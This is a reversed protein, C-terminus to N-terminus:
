RRVVEVEKKFTAVADINGLVPVRKEYDVSIRMRGGQSEVKVDRGSISTVDNVSFRKDLMSRIEATTKSGIEPENELSEIASAVSFYELYGPTLRLALLVFFGILGLVIIWGIATMGRQSQLTRM